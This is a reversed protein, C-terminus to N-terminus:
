PGQGAAASARDPVPGMRFVLDLRFDGEEAMARLDRHTASVLRVDVPIEHTGGVRRIRGEQLVRLLKAQMSESMEAVEDLFLTGGNAAEFLGRKPSHAGTFAGKDHGVRESELLEEPFASCNVALFRGGRGSHEHVLQAMREKGTGTEGNVLVAVKRPGVRRTAPIAALLAPCPGIIAQELKEARSTPSSGAVSLGDRQTRKPGDGEPYPLLYSLLRSPPVGM